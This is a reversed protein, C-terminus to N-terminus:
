LRKYIQRNVEHIDFKKECLIRSNYGFIKILSPNKVINEIAEVLANTNKPTILYGNENNIVTERCGITNTTIIPRGCAMAELISRPVGERYYSPYIFVSATKLAEAMNEVYGIYNVYQSCEQLQKQTIASPNQDINGGLIFEVHPYKEKILAAAEVFHFVGKERVLRAAMFFTLKEPFKSPKYAELDVGTGNVISSHKEAVIKHNLFLERDDKNQFFVHTFHKFSKKYLFMCIKKVFARKLGPEEIFAYGLGSILGYIKKIGLMHAIIGGYTNPKVNGLFVSDPKEIKFLRRIALLTKLNNFIGVSTGSFGDFPIFRVKPCRKKWYAIDEQPLAISVDMGKECFDNLLVYRLKIASPNFLFLM